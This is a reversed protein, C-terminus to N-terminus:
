GAALAGFLAAFAQARTMSLGTRRVQELREEPLAARLASELADRRAAVTPWRILGQGAWAADAHAMASAAVESQGSAAAAIALPDLLRLDDRDAALRRQAETAMPLGEDVRGQLLLVGALAEYVPGARRDTVGAAALGALAKRALAEAREAQGLALECDVVNVGTLRLTFVPDRLASLEGQEVACALADAERGERRLWRYRAWRLYSRGAPPWGEQELALAEDVLPRLDPADARQAGILVNCALAEHLWHPDGQRRFISVALQAARWAEASAFKAGAGAVRLWFPGSLEEPVGQLAMAQLPQLRRAQENVMDARVFAMATQTAVTLALRHDGSGTAWELAARANDLEAADAEFEDATCRWRRPPRSRPALHEAMTEAHRRLMAETEGREALQELAFLRTTELLRYRPMGAADVLVLSKDVLSGLHELVDWGDIDESEAVRQAAELAFSGVFCGLRRFVAQEAPSLLAHSWELAARLTQHRRLAARAGATLVQFRDRLRWRVGDVGLLSVRAAALEIALPIGDLQRCIDAVASANAGELRFRADSAHARVAFLQGAGSRAVEAADDSVPLDLPSVRFVQEHPIRLVEQSTVLFRLAPQLDRLAAVLKATSELLHEANDLVLWDHGTLLPALTVAADTGDTEYGLERGIAAGILSPETLPALDVVCIARGQARLVAVTELALRTKGIGGAGAVTVMRHTRLQALLDQLDADRGVLTSLRPAPAPPQPPAADVGAIRVPLTFRYGRGPVTAIAPHGLLKRLTVVQVQLNNEEVVVGQWVLELLEDKGVVRDRREVLALLMDLARAGLKVQREGEPGAEFVARRAPVLRYTGLHYCLEPDIALSM